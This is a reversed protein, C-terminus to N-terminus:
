SKSKLKALNDAIFKEKASSNDGSKKGKKAKASKGAINAMINDYEKNLTEETSTNLTEKIAKVKERVSSISTKLKEVVVKREQGASERTSSKEGSAKESIGSRKESTTETIQALKEKAEANISVRKQDNSARLREKQALSATRPIAPLADLKRQKEIQIQEKQQQATKSLTQKESSTQGTIKELWSKLKESIRERVSSAESKLGEIEATSSTQIEETKQKKETTVGEKVYNWTKKQEDSMGSTSRGKLKKTREYYDHAKTPDYYQSSYAHMFEEKTLNVRM